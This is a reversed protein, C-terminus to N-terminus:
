VNTRLQDTPSYDIKWDAYCGLVGDNRCRLGISVWRVEGDNRLAFGAAVDFVEGGCPCAADGPDAEEMHDASDLMLHVLGCGACTREAFGEEDDVRVDYGADSDCGPCAGVTRVEKVPYGGAKFGRLYEALDAPETGTWLEGSRDISV